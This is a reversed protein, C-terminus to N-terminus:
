QTLLRIKRFNLHHLKWFERLWGYFFKVNEKNFVYIQYMRYIQYIQYKRNENKLVQKQKM